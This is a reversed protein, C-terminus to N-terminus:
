FSVRLNIKKKLVNLLCSYILTQALFIIKQILRIPVLILKQNHNQRNIMYIKTVYEFIKTDKKEGM